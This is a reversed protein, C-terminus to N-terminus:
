TFIFGEVEAGGGGKLMSLYTCCQKWEVMKM